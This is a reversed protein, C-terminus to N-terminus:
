IVTDNTQVPLKRPIDRFVSLEERGRRPAFNYDDTALGQLFLRVQTMYQM